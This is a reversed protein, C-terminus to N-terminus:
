RASVAMRYLTRRAHYYDSYDLYWQVPNNPWLKALQAQVHALEDGDVSFSRGADDRGARMVELLSRVQVGDRYLTLRYSPIIMDTAEPAPGRPDPPYFFSLVGPGHHYFPNVWPNIVPGTPYKNSGYKGPYHAYPLSWIGIDWIYWGDVGLNECKLPLFASSLGANELNIHDTEVHYVWQIKPRTMRANWEHEFFNYHEDNGPMPVDLLEDMVLTGDPLKRTWTSVKQITHGIKIRSAYPQSRMARVYALIDDYTSEQSEDIVFVTRDLIGMEDMHRAMADWYEGVLQDFQDRPLQVWRPDDPNANVSYTKGNLWIKDMLHGNSRGIMFWPSARDIVFTRIADDYADAFTWDTLQPALNEGRDVVRYSVYPSIGLAPSQPQMHNDLMAHFYRELIPRAGQAQTARDATLGHYEAMSIGDDAMDAVGKRPTLFFSCLGIISGFHENPKITLSSMGLEVPLVIARDALRLTVEGRHVGPTTRQDPTITAVILHIGDVSDPDLAYDLPVMADYRTEILEGQVQGEVTAGSYVPITALRHFTVDAPLDCTAQM